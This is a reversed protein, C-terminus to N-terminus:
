EEFLRDGRALRVAATVAQDLTRNTPSHAALYRAVAVAPLRPDLDPMEQALVLGAEFCQQAHFGHDEVLYLHALVKWLERPPHGSALWSAAARAAGDVDKRSVASSLEAALENLSADKPISVPMPAAPMNLYRVLYVDMAGHALARRRPVGGSTRPLLRRLAAAYTFAHHVTDWDFFENRLHFRAVRTLAAVALRDAAAPDPAALGDLARAPDDSLLADLSPTGPSGERSSMLEILDHPIRWDSDEESRRAAALDTVLSFLVPAAHNWGIRDLLEFAKETFDLAHGGDLFVHDTLAGLFADALERPTAGRRVLTLVCRKAAGADRQEVFQRFWRALRPTDLGDANPLPEVPVPPPRNECDRAVGRLGQVLALIRDERPLDLASLVNAHAALITLGPGWEDRFAVGFLAGRRVIDADSVGADVLAVAARAIKTTNFERLGEDLLKWRAAAADGRPTFDVWVEDGRVEVPFSPLDTGGETLCGGGCADFRWQHWHCTVIGDKLSGKQMPFGLHPCRNDFAYVTGNERWLCLGEVVVPGNRLAALTTVKRM